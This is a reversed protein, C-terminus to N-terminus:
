GGNNEGQCGLQKARAAAISEFSAEWTRANNGPIQPPLPISAYSLFSSCRQQNNSKIMQATLWFNAGTVALVVAALTLAARVRGPKVASM